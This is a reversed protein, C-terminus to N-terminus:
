ETPANGGGFHRLLTVMSSFGLVTQDYWVKPDRHLPKAVGNFTEVEADITFTDGDWKVKGQENLEEDGAYVKVKTKDIKQLGVPVRFIENEECAFREARFCWHDGANHSISILTPKGELISTNM